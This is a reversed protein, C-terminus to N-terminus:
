FMRYKALSLGERAAEEAYADLAARNEEVRRRNREAKEARAEAKDREKSLGDFRWTSGGTTSRL